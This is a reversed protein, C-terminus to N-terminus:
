IICVDTDGQIYLIIFRKRFINSQLQKRHRLMIYLCKYVHHRWWISVNELNSAMHAPLEATVPSNGACLGTVRLKSTKKSRRRFKVTSYVITFSTIQSAMASMTVDNYHFNWQLISILPLPYLWIKFNITARCPNLHLILDQYLLQYLKQWGYSVCEFQFKVVKPEDMSDSKIVRSLIVTTHLELIYIRESSFFM